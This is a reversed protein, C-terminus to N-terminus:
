KGKNPSDNSKTLTGDSDYELGCLSIVPCDFRNGDGNTRDLYGYCTITGTDTNSHTIDVATKYTVTDPNQIGYVRFVYLSGGDDYTLTMMLDDAPREFFLRDGTDDPTMFVDYGNLSLVVSIDDGTFGVFKEGNVLAYLDGYVEIREWGLPNKEAVTYVRTIDMESVDPATDFTLEFAAFYAGEEFLVPLGVLVTYETLMIETDSLAIFDATITHEEIGTYAKEICLTKGILLRGVEKELSEGLRLKEGINEKIYSSTVENGSIHSILQHFSNRVNELADHTSASSASIVLSDYESKFANKHSEMAIKYNFTQMIATWDASMAAILDQRETNLQNSIDGEDEGSQTNDSSSNGSGASNNTGASNGSPFLSSPDCSSLILCFALMLSIILLSKTIRRM